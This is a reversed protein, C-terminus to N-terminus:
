RGTISYRAMKLIAMGLLAMFRDPLRKTVQVLVCKWHAFGAM